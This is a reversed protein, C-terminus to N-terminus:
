KKTITASKIPYQNNEVGGSVLVGTRVETNTAQKRKSIRMDRSPITRLQTLKM